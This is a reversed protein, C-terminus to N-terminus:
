MELKRHDGTKILTEIDDSALVPQSMLMGLAVFTGILTRIRM